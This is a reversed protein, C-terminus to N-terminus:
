RPPNFTEGSKLSLGGIELRWQARTAARARWGRRPEATTMPHKEEVWDWVVSGPPTIEPLPASRFVRSRAIPLSVYVSESLLTSRLFVQAVTAERQALTRYASCGPRVHGWM